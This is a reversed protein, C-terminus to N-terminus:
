KVRWPKILNTGSCAIGPSIIEMKFTGSHREQKTLISFHSDSTSRCLCVEKNSLAIDVTHHITLHHFLQLMKLLKIYLLSTAHSLM